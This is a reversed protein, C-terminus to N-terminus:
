YKFQQGYAYHVAATMAASNNVRLVMKEDPNSLVGFTSFDLIKNVTTAGGATSYLLTDVESGGVALATGSGATPFNRVRVSHIEYNSTGSGFTTTENALLLRTMTGAFPNQAMQPAPVSRTALWPQISTRYKPPVLAITSKFAVAADWKLLVGDALTAQTAGFTTITDNSSDARLGDVIVCRWAGTTSSNIADCVEGFTDCAANAVVIVGGLAGSVPCETTVDASGNDILTIDGNAAVAITASSSTGTYKVIMGVDTSVAGLAGSVPVAPMFRSADILGQAEVPAHSPLTAALVLAAALVTLYRKM